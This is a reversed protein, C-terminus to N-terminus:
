LVSVLSYCIGMGWIFIWFLAIMETGLGGFFIANWGVMFGWSGEFVIKIIIVIVVQSCRDTTNRGFTCSHGFFVVDFRERAYLPPLCSFPFSSFLNCRQQVCLLELSYFCWGKRKDTRGGSVYAESGFRGEGCIFLTSTCHRGASIALSERERKAVCVQVFASSGDTAASTASRLQGPENGQSESAQKSAQLAKKEWKGDGWEPEGRQARKVSRCDPDFSWVSM